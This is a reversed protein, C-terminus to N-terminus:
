NSLLSREDAYLFSLFGNGFERVMLGTKTLEQIRNNQTDCVFISNGVIVLGGPYEFQGNGSGREGFSSNYVIENSM